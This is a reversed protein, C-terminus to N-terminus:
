PAVGDSDPKHRLLPVLSPLSVVLDLLEAFRGPKVWYRTAGLQLARQRDSHAMSSSMMIVPVDKLREDSRISSLVEFGDAEPMKIDLLVLNPQCTKLQRIADAGDTSVTITATLATEEFALLLLDIDALNDDAIFIVPTM